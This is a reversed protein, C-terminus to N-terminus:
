KFRRRDRVASTTSCIKAKSTIVVAFIIVFAVALCFGAFLGGGAYDWFISPSVKKLEKM